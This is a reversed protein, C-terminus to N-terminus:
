RKGVSAATNEDQLPQLLFAGLRGPKEEGVGSVPTIKTESQDIRGIKIDGNVSYRALKM